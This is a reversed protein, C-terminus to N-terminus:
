LDMDADMNAFNVVFIKLPWLLYLQDLRHKGQYTPLQIACLKMACIYSLYSTREPTHVYLNYMCVVLQVTSRYFALIAKECVEGVKWLLM